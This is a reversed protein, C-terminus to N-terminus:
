NWFTSGSAISWLRWSIFLMKWTPIKQPMHGYMTKLFSVTGRIGSLKPQPPGKIWYFVCLLRVWFFSEWFLTLWWKSPFNKQIAFEISFFCWFVYQLNLRFYVYMCFTTLVEELAALNNCHFGSIAAVGQDKYLDRTKRFIAVLSRNM